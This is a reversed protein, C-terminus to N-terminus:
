EVMGHPLLRLGRWEVRSGRADRRGAVREFTVLEQLARDIEPDSMSTAQGSHRSGNDAGLTICARPSHADGNTQAVVWRMLEHYSARASAPAGPRATPAAM